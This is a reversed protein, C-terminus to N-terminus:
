EETTIKDIINGVEEKFNLNGPDKYNSTVLLFNESDQPIYFYAVEGFLDESLYYIGDEKYTIPEVIVKFDSSLQEKKQVIDAEAIQRLGQKNIIKAQEVTISYGDFLETQTKQTPGLFIFSVTGDLNNSVDLKTPITTSFRLRQNTYKKSDNSESTKTITVTPSVSEPCPSSPKLSKPNGHKQWTGNECYWSDEPSLIKFGFVVALVILLLVIAAKYQKM